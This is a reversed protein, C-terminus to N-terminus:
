RRKEGSNKKNEKVELILKVEKNNQKEFKKFLEHDM